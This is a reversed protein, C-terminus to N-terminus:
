CKKFNDKFCYESMRSGKTVLCGTFFRRLDWAAISRSSHRKNQAGNSLWSIANVAHTTTTRSELFAPFSQVLFWSLILALLRKFSTRVSHSYDFLGSRRFHIADQGISPPGNFNKDAVVTLSGTAGQNGKRYDTDPFGNGGGQFVPCM